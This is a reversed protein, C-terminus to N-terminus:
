AHPPKTEYKENAKISAYVLKLLKKGYHLSDHKLNEPMSNICAGGIHLYFYEFPKEMRNTQIFEKTILLLKRVSDNDVSNLVAFLETNYGKITRTTAM